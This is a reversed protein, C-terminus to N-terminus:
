ALQVFIFNTGCDSHLHSPIGRRPTFRRYAAIFGDSSNQGTRLSCSINLLVYIYLDLMQLNQMWSWEMLKHQNARRLRDWYSHFIIIPHGRGHNTAEHNASCTSGSVKCLDYMKFYIVQCTGQRRHDLIGASLICSHTSHWRLTYILSFASHDTIYTSQERTNYSSAKLSSKISNQGGVRIM